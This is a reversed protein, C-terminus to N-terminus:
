IPTKQIAVIDHHYDWARESYMVLRVDDRSRIERWYWNPSTMSVGYDPTSLYPSYGYEKEGYYGSILPRTNGGMMYPFHQEIIRTAVSRGHSSFVAVGNPALWEIFRTLLARSAEENLHTLVSGAWILDHEGFNGLNYFDTGSVVPLANFTSACFEVGDANVDTATIVAEPFAARLWRLVRGHGCGFDLLRDANSHESLFMCTQIVKIASAGCRIYAYPQTLDLMVDNQSTTTSVTLPQSIRTEAIARQILEQLVM